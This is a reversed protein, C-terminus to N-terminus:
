AGCADLADIVMPLHTYAPGGAMMVSVSVAELVQERTLGAEICKKVHLLICPECQIAVAIGVAVLEKEKVSISGEGMVKGFLGSFGNIANSTQQKMKEADKQFQEYFAKVDSASM